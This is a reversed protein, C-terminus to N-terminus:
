INIPQGYFPCIWDRSNHATCTLTSKVDGMRDCTWQIPRLYLMVHIVRGSIHWHGATGNYWINHGTSHPRGLAKWKCQGGMIRDRCNSISLCNCETTEMCAGTIIIDLLQNACMIKHSKYAWTIPKHTHTHASVHGCYLVLLIIPQLQGVEFRSILIHNQMSKSCGFLTLAVWKKIGKTNINTPIYDTKNWFFLESYNLNM